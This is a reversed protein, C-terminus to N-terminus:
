SWCGKGMIEHLQQHNNILLQFIVPNSFINKQQLEINKWLMLFFSFM